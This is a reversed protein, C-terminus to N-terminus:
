IGHREGNVEINLRIYEECYLQAETYSLKLDEKRICAGSPDTITVEYRLGSPRILYKYGRYPIRYM